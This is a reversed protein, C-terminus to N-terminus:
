QMILAWRDLLSWRKFQSPNRDLHAEFLTKLYAVAKNAPLRDATAKQMAGEWKKLSRTYADLVDASMTSAVWLATGKVAKDVATEFEYPPTQVAARYSPTAGSHAMIARGLSLAHRMRSSMSPWHKQGETIVWFLYPWYDPPLGHKNAKTVVARVFAQGQSELAEGLEDAVKAVIQNETMTPGSYETRTWNRWVKKLNDWLKM